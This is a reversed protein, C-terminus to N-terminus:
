SSVYDLTVTAGKCGDQNTGSKDNFQITAQDGLGGWTGTGTGTQVTQGVDMVPNSLLYDTADCTGQADQAQTVDGISVTVATVFVPGNAVPNDFDGSLGQAPGGPRLDTVVSTQVVTLSSTDGTEASGTGTGGTTWYAYAVGAGVALLVLAILLVPSRTTLRPM